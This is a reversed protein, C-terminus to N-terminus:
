KGICFNSFIHDLIDDTTTEGTIEALSDMASRIDLALFEQSFGKKLSSKAQQIGNAAEELINKHRARTLIIEGEHPFQGGAAMNKLLNVLLDVGNNKLASLKVVPSSVNQFCKDGPLVKLPLDSKNLIIIRHQQEGQIWKILEIDEDQLNQSADIVLLALDSKEAAQRARKVGEKEIPDETNRIGATDAVRFLIGEIDLVDEVTDRTTGPIDTVIAREKELIANLLSSKGVNPRGIIALSIGERYIRGRQYSGLLKQISHHVNDLLKTLDDRSALEIEEEGFDLEIEILSCFHLLQDKLSQIHKSLTGELQYMAVRRATETRARILDAVAEAQALDMKGNLYARQTFEGPMATRAGSRVLHDLIRESLFVGGHCTIEIMDEGTYSNPSKFFSILVEDLIEDRDYIWGHALIKHTIKNSPHSPRFVRRAISLAEKGSLRIMAIAGEARPTAVAAITDDFTTKM